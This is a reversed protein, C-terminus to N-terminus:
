RDQSHNINSEDAHWKFCVYNFGWKFIRRLRVKGHSDLRIFFINEKMFLKKLDFCIYQM